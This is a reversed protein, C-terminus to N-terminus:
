LSMKWNTSQKYFILLHPKTSPCTDGKGEGRKSQQKRILIYSLALQRGVAQRGVVQRGLEMSGEMITM